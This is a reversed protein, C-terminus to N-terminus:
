FLLFLCGCNFAWGDEVEESVAEDFAPSTEVPALSQSSVESVYHQSLIQDIEALTAENFMSTDEFDDEDVQLSKISENYLLLM